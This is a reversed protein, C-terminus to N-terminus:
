KIFYFIIVIKHLTNFLNLLIGSKGLVTTVFLRLLFNSVCRSVVLEVYITETFLDLTIERYMKVIARLEAWLPAAACCQCSASKQRKQASFVSCNLSKKTGVRWHFTCCLIPELSPHRERFGSISFLLHTVGSFGSFLVPFSGLSKMRIPAPNAPELEAVKETNRSPM